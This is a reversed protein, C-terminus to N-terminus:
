EEAPKEAETAPAAPLARKLADGMTAPQAGGFFQDVDLDADKSLQRFKRQFEEITTAWKSANKYQVGGRQAALNFQRYALELSRQVDRLTRLGQHFHVDGLMNMLEREDDITTNMLKNARLLMDEARDSNGGNVDKIERTAVRRFLSMLTEDLEEATLAGSDDLAIDDPLRFPKYARNPAWESAGFPFYWGREVRVTGDDNVLYFNDHHASSIVWLVIFVVAGVGFLLGRQPLRRRERPPEALAPPDLGLDEEGLLEDVSPEKESM